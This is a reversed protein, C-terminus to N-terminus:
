RCPQDISSAPDDSDGDVHDIEEGPEGCSQCRASDRTWIAQRTSRSLIRAERHYGGALLFAVRTSLSQRVDPKEIRGDRLVKRWYRVTEATQM